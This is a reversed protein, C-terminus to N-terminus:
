FVGNPCILPSHPSRTSIRCHSWLPSPAFSPLDVRSRSSTSELDVRSRGERTLTGCVSHLNCRAPQLSNSNLLSRASLHARRHSSSLCSSSILQHASSIFQHASSILLHASSCILQASSGILQGALKFKSFSEWKAGYQSVPKSIKVRTGSALGLRNDPLWDGCTVPAGHKGKRDHLQRSAPTLPHSRTAAALLPDDLSLFSPVPERAVSGSWWILTM